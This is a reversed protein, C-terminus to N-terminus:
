NNLFDKEELGSQLLISRFTGYPIEKKSVKVTVNHTPKGIKRYKKHSGKQAIFLFGKKVLVKLVTKTSIPKPM